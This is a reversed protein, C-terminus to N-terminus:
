SSYTRDACLGLRKVPKGGEIRGGDRKKSVQVPHLLLESGLTTYPSTHQDMDIEEAGLYSPKSAAYSSVDPMQLCAEDITGSSHIESLFGLYDMHDNCAKHDMHMASDYIDGSCCSAVICEADEMLPLVNEERSAFSLSCDPTATYRKRCLFIVDADDADARYECARGRKGRKRLICGRQCQHIWGSGVVM